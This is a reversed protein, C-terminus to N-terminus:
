DPEVLDLHSQRAAHLSDLTYLLVAAWIFGFSVIQAQTFLEGFALVALLFQLTPSLYQVIGLTSLRLRQAAAAFFLLPISTALGSLALLGYTRADAATAMGMQRVVVLYVIAVPTLVLTEVTLAVLGPVPTIKRLLGYLGFSVALVIAIWPLTGVKLGLVLVGLAALAISIKQRPRLSERLIVVGLLVHVLPLVFYGLSSQLVQRSAVAYIFTLWNVAILLTSLGLMVATKPNRLAALLEGWRRSMGLLTGLVVFSMVARYALVELPAVHAVSKFYLPILGWLGYAAIGYLLGQWPHRPNQDQESLSDGM